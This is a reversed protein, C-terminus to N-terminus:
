ARLLEPQWNFHRIKTSKDTVIAAWQERRAITLAEPLSRCEGILELTTGHDRLRVRRQVRYETTWVPDTIVPHEIRAFARQDEERIRALDAAVARESAVPDTQMHRLDSNGYTNRLQRRRPIM